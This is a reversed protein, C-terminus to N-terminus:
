VNCIEVKLDLDQQEKEELFSKEILFIFSQHFIYSLFHDPDEEEKKGAVFDLLHFFLFIKNTFAAIRKMKAILNM